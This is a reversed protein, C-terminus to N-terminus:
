TGMVRTTFARAAVVVADEIAREPETVPPLPGITTVQAVLLPDEPVACPGLEAQVTALTGRMAPALVIVTVAVSLLVWTACDNTVMRRVVAGGADVGVPVVGGEVVGEEVVGGESVMAEGEDEDIEVEADDMTKLPVALSLTPTVLTVHDVLVPPDPM